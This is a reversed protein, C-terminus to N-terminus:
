EAEGDIFQNSEVNRIDSSIQKDYDSKADIVNSMVARMLGQYYKECELDERSQKTNTGMVGFLYARNKKDIYLSRMSGKTFKDISKLDGCQHFIRSTQSIEMKIEDVLPEIRKEVESNLLQCIENKDKLHSAERARRGAYFLSIQNEMFGIKRFRLFNNKSIYERLFKANKPISQSCTSLYGYALPLMWAGRKDFAESIRTHNRNGFFNKDLLNLFLEREENVNLSQGFVFVRHEEFDGILTKSGGHKIWIDNFQNVTLFDSLDEKQIFEDCSWDGMWKPKNTRRWWWGDKQPDYRKLCYDLLNETDFIHKYDNEQGISKGSFLPLFLIFLILYKM